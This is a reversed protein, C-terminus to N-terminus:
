ACLEKLKNDLMILDNEISVSLEQRVFDRHEPSISACIRAPADTQHDTVVSCIISIERQTDSKSVVDSKRFDLDMQRSENEIRLKQKQLELLSEDEAARQLQKSKAEARAWELMTFIPYCGDQGPKGIEGPCGKGIWKRVTKPDVGLVLAAVDISTAFLLQVRDPTVRDTENM